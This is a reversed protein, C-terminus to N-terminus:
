ILKVSITYLIEIFYDINLRSSHLFTSNSHVINEFM